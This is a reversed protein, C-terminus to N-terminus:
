LFLCNAWTRVREGLMTIGLERCKACTIKLIEKFILSMSQKNPWWDTSKHTELSLMDYQGNYQDEENQKYVKSLFYM